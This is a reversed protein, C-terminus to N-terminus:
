MYLNIGRTFVMIDVTVVYEMHTHQSFDERENPPPEENETEFKNSSSDEYPTYSLNFYKEQL